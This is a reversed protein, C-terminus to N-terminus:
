RWRVIRFHLACHCGQCRDAFPISGATTTIVQMVYGKGNCTSCTVRKPTLIECMGSEQAWYAFLFDRLDRHKKAERKIEWWREPTLQARPQPLTAKKGSKTKPPTKLQPARAMPDDASDVVIFTGDRFFGLRITRKQRAQWLEVVRKRDVGLDAVIEELAQATVGDKTTAQGGAYRMAERLALEPEDRLKRALLDKVLKPLQRTVVAVRHEQRRQNGEEELEALSKLLVEDKHKARFEEILQAAQDFRNFVFAQKIRRLEERAEQQGLLTNVLELYRRIKEVPYRTDGFALVKEYHRKAPGLAGVKRAYDAIRFHDVATTPPAEAVKRDYLETPTYVQDASLEIAEPPDPVDRVPIKYDRESTKVHYFGDQLATKENLLLGVFVKAARTRIEHGQVRLSDAVDATEFGLDIRLERATKAELQDWAVTRKGGSRRDRIVVAADTCEAKLVVGFIQSGDALLIVRPRADQALAVAALLVLLLLRLKM